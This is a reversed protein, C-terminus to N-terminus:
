QELNGLLSELEHRRPELTKRVAYQNLWYIFWYVLGIVISSGLLNIVDKSELGHVRHHVWFVSLLVPIGIPLLYWWLINKLLWIQHNVEALSTEVCGKLTDYLDPTKKRQARRDVLIYTGVWLCALAILYDTWDNLWVGLFIFVGVLIFAVSVERVDRLFITTRFQQQNRRVEKLVLDTNLSIKNGANQSQWSKQFDEFNM